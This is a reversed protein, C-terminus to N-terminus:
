RSRMSRLVPSGSHIEDFEIAREALEAQGAHRGDEFGAQTVGLGLLMVGISRTEISTDSSSRRRCSRSSSRRCLCAASGRDRDSARCAEIEVEVLLHIARQDVVQGGAAEDRLAFVREKEARRAGAFTMEGLGDAAGRDLLAIADEIAFGVRQELFEGVGREIARALVIEGVEGVTGSSIM